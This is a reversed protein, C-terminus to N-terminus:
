HEEGKLYDLLYEKLHDSKEEEKKFQELLVKNDAIIKKLRSRTLVKSDGTNMEIINVAKYPTTTVMGPMGPMSNMYTTYNIADYVCYKGLYNVEFFSTTSIRESQATSNVIYVKHGDCFGFVSGLDRAVEKSVDIKYSKFFYPDSFLSTRYENDVGVIVGVLKESPANTRFEEFTRYIGPQKLSDKLIPFEKYNYDSDYQKIGPEDDYQAFCCYTNCIFFLFFLHKM